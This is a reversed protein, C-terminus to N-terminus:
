KSGKSNGSPTPKPKPAATPKPASPANTPLPQNGSATPQPQNGGGVGGAAPVDVAVATPVVVVRLTQAIATPPASDTNASPSDVAAPAVVVDSAQTPMLTPLLQRGPVARLTPIPAFAVTATPIIIDTPAPLVPVETPSPSEEVMAEAVPAPTQAALVMWGALTGVSALITTITRVLMRENQEGANKIQQVIKRNNPPQNTM